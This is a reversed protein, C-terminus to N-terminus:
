RGAGFLAWVAKGGEDLVDWGWCTSYTEVIHLGRGHESVFDPETPRPAEDSPDSVALLVNPSMRLLVLTIPHDTFRRAAFGAYRVANTVLESVVLAADDGIEPVGWRRLTTRTVDRATKVSDAQPRLPCTTAHDRDSSRLLRQFGVEHSAELRYAASVPDLM